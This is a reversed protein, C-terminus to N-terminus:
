KGGGPPAKLLLPSPDAPPLDEIEWHIAFRQTGLHLIMSTIEREERRAPFHLVKKQNEKWNKKGNKRTNAKM